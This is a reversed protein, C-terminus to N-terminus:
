PELRVGHARELRVLDEPTDVDTTCRAHAVPVALAQAPHARRWERVGAAASGLLLARLGAGFVIPHGPQGDHQPFVLEVGAPRERWAAQMAQLDQVELLPQDALLVMVEQIEAGLAALGCRLSGGPGADPAPNRVRRVQGALPGAAQLAAEIAEAHHGLVLAVRELGAERLLRVQRLVLPEGERRLLGKPRGGMRRGAGAAM